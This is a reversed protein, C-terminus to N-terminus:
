AMNGQFNGFYPKLAQTIEKTRNGCALRVVLKALDGGSLGLHSSIQSPMSKRNYIKLLGLYDNNEVISEFM